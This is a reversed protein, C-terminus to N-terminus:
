RPGGGVIVTMDYVDTTAHGGVVTFADKYIGSKDFIARFGATVGDVRPAGSGAGFWVRDFHPDAWVIATGAQIELKHNREFLERVTVTVPPGAWAVDIGLMLILASVSALAVVSGQMGVMMAMARRM